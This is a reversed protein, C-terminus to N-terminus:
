IIVDIKEGNDKVFKIIKEEIDNSNNGTKWNNLENAINKNKELINQTINLSKKTIGQWGPFKDGEVAKYLIQADQYKFNGTAVKLFQYTPILQGFHTKNNTENLIKMYTNFLLLNNKAGLKKQIIIM